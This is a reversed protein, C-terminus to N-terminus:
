FSMCYFEVLAVCWCYILGFCASFFSFFLAFQDLVPIFSPKATSSEQCVNIVHCGPWLPSVTGLHLNPGPDTDVTRFLKKTRYLTKVLWLNNIKERQTVIWVDQSFIILHPYNYVHVAPVGSNENTIQAARKFLVCIRQLWTWRNSVASNLDTVLSTVLPKM